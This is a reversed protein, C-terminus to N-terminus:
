CFCELIMQCNGNIISQYGRCIFHLVSSDFPYPFPNTTSLRKCHRRITRASNRFRNRVIHERTRVHLLLLARRSGSGSTTCRAPAISTERLAITFITDSPDTRLKARQLSSGSILLACFVARRQTSSTKTAPFKSRLDADPWLAPALNHPTAEVPAPTDVVSRCGSDVLPQPLLRNPPQKLPAADEVPESLLRIQPLRADYSEITEAGAVVANPVTTPSTLLAPILPGPRARDTLLPATHIPREASGRSVPLLRFGLRFRSSRKLAELHNIPISVAPPM